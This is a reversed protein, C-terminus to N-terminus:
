RLWGSEPSEDTRLPFACSQRTERSEGGSIESGGVGLPSAIESTPSRTERHVQGSSLVDRDFVEGSASVPSRRGASRPLPKHPPPQNGPHPWRTMGVVEGRCCDASVIAAHSSWRRGTGSGGELQVVRTRVRTRLVRREHRVEERM